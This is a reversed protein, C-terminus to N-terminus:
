SLKQLITSPQDQLIVESSNSDIEMMETSVEHIFASLREERSINKWSLQKL